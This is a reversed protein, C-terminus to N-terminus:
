FPLDDNSKSSMVQQSFEIDACTEYLKGQSSDCIISLIGNSKDVPNLTAHVVSMYRIMDEEIGNMNIGNEDLYVKFEKLSHFEECKYMNEYDEYFYIWKEITDYEDEGSKKRKNKGKLRINKSKPFFSDLLEKSRKTRKSKKKSSIEPYYDEYYDDYYSDDPFPLGDYDDYFSGCYIGSNHRSYSDYEEIIDDIFDENTLECFKNARNNVKVITLGKKQM